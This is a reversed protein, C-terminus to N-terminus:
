EALNGRSKRSFDGSGAICRFLTLQVNENGIRFSEGHQDVGAGTFRASGM